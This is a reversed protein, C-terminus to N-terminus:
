VKARAEPGGSGGERGPLYENKLSLESTMESSVKM